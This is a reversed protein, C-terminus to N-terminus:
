RPPRYPNLGLPDSMYDIQRQFAPALAPDHALTGIAEPQGRNARVADAITRREVGLADAPAVGRDDTEGGGPAADAEGGGFTSALWNYNRGGGIGATPAPVIAPAAPPAPADADAGGGIVNGLWDFLGGGTTDDAPAGPPAAGALLSHVSVDIGLRDFTHQMSTFPDPPRAGRAMAAYLATNFDRGVQLLTAVAKKASDKDLFTFERTLPDYTGDYLTNVVYRAMSMFQSDTPPTRVPAAAARPAPPRAGTYVTVPDGPLLDRAAANRITAAEIDANAQGRDRADSLLRSRSQATQTVGGGATDLVVGSDDLSFRSHGRAALAAPNGRAAAALVAAKIGEAESMTRRSKADMASVRMAQRSWPTETLTGGVLDAIGRESEGYRPTGTHLAYALPNGGRADELIKLKLKAEPTLGFAGYLPGADKAPVVGALMGTMVEDDLHVGPASARQPDMLVERAALQNRMLETELRIKEHEADMSRRAGLAQLTRPVGFAIGRGLRALGQALPDM